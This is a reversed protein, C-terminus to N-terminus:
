PPAVFRVPKVRLRAFMSENEENAGGEASFDRLFHQQAVAALVCVWLWVNWGVCLCLNHGGDGAGGGGKLM